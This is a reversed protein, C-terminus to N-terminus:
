HLRFTNKNVNSLLILCFQYCFYIFEAAFDDMLLLIAVIIYIYHVLMYCEGSFNQSIFAKHASDADTYFNLSFFLLLCGCEVHM